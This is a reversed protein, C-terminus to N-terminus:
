RKRLKPPRIEVGLSRYGRKIPKLGTGGWSPTHGVKVGKTKSLGKFKLSSFGFGTKPLSIFGGGIPRGGRGTKFTVPKIPTPTTSGRVPTKYSVFQKPQVSSFQSPRQTQSFTKARSISPAQVLSISRKQRTKRIQTTSPMVMPQLKPSTKVKISESKLDAFKTALGGIVKPSPGKYRPLNSTTTKITQPEINLVPRETFTKSSVFTMDRSPTGADSYLKGGSSPPASAVPDFSIDYYGSALKQPITQRMGLFTDYSSASSPTFGLSASSTSGYVRGLKLPGLSYKPASLLNYSQSASYVGASPKYVAVGVIQSDTGVVFGGGMEKPVYKIDTKFEGFKKIDGAFPREKGTGFLKTHKSAVYYGSGTEGVAVDQSYTQGVKHGRIMRNGLRIEQMGAKAINIGGRVGYSVGGATAIFAVSQGAFRFPNAKINSATTDVYSTYPGLAQGFGESAKQVSGFTSELAKGFNPDVKGKATFYEGKYKMIQPPAIISGVTDGLAKAVPVAFLPVSAVGLFTSVGSAVLSVAGGAGAVSHVLGTGVAMGVSVPDKSFAEAGKEFETVIYKAPTDGSVQLKAGKQHSYSPDFTPEIKSANIKIPEREKSLVSVVGKGFLPVDKLATGFDEKTAPRTTTETYTQTKIVRGERDRKVPTSSTIKLKGSPDKIATRSVYIDIPEKTKIEKGGRYITQRLPTKMEKKEQREVVVREGEETYGETVKTEIKGHEQVTVLGGSKITRRQKYAEPSRGKVTRYIEKEGSTDYQVNYTVGDKTETRVPGLQGSVM